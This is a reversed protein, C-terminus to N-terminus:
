QGLRRHGVRAGSRAAIMCGDKREAGAVVESISDLAGPGVLSGGTAAGTECAWGRVLIGIKSM